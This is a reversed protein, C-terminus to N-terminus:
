EMPTWEYGYVEILGDGTHGALWQVFNTNVDYIDIHWDADTCTTKAFYASFGYEGMEEEWDPSYIVNSVTITAPDSIRTFTFNNRDDFDPNM